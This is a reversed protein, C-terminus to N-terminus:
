WYCCCLVSTVEYSYIVYFLFQSSYKDELVQRDIQNMRKVRRWYGGHSLKIEEMIQSDSAGQSRLQRIREVQELIQKETIGM